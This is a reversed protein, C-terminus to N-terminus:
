PHLAFKLARAPGDGGCTRAQTSTTDLRSPLVTIVATIVVESNSALSGCVIGDVAGVGSRQARSGLVIGGVSTWAQVGRNIRGNVLRGGAGNLVKAVVEDGGATRQESSSGQCHLVAVVNHVPNGSNLINGGVWGSRSRERNSALSASVVEKATAVVNVNSAGTRSVSGNVARM